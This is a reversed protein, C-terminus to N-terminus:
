ITPSSWPGTIDVARYLPSEKLKQIVRQSAWKKSGKLHATTRIGGGCSYTAQMTKVRFTDVNGEKSAHVCWQCDPAACKVTVRLKDNKIFTFDFNQRIANSRLFDKFQEANDFRQGAKLTLRDVTQSSQVISLAGAPPHQSLYNDVDANMSASFADRLAYTQQHGCM